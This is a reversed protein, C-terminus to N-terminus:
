DFMDDTVPAVPAVPKVRPVKPVPCDLYPVATALGENSEVRIASKGGMTHMLFRIPVSSAGLFSLLLGMHRDYWKRPSQKVFQRWM